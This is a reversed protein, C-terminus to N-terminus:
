LEPLCCKSNSMDGSDSLMESITNITKFFRYVSSLDIYKLFFVRSINNKLYKTLFPM